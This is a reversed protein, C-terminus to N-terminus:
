AAKRSPILICILVLAAGAFVLYPGIGTGTYTFWAEGINQESIFYYTVAAALLSLFTAWLHAPTEKEISFLLTLGLLSLVASIIGELTSYGLMTEVSRGFISSTIEFEWPFVLSAVIDVLGIASLIRKVTFKGPKAESTNSVPQFTSSAYAVQPSAAFKKRRPKIFVLVGLVAGLVSVMYVLAVTTPDFHDFLVIMGGQLFNYIEFLLIVLFINVLALIRRINFPRASLPTIFASIFNLILLISSTPALNYVYPFVLRGFIMQLVVYVLGMGIFALFVEGVGPERESQIEPQFPNPPYVATGQVRYGYLNQADQSRTLPTSADFLTDDEGTPNGCNQCFLSGSLLSNGCHRCTRMTNVKENSRISKQVVEAPLHLKGLRELAKKNDPNIRLAQQLCYKKQEKRDVCLYLCLWAKENNPEERVLEKLVSFADEKQGNRLLSYAYEAKPSGLQPKRQPRTQTLTPFDQQVAPYPSAQIFVRGCIPCATSVAPIVNGCYCTMMEQSHNVVRKGPYPGYQNDQRKGEGVLVILLWIPGIIPILGILQFWGNKGVDHLRRTTVATFPLLTLLNYLLFVLGYPLDSSITTGNINDLITAGTGIILHFVYFTWYEKRSARGSFVAYKGIVIFYQKM